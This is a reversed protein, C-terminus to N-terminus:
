SFSFESNLGRLSRKFFNVKHWIRGSRLPQTFLIMLAKRVIAKMWIKIEVFDQSIHEAAKKLHKNFEPVLVSSCIVDKVSDVTGNAM